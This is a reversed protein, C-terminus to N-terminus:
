RALFGPPMQRARLLPKERFCRANARWWPSGAREKKQPRLVAWSPGVGRLPQGFNHQGDGRLKRALLYISGLVEVIM